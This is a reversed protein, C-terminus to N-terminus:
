VAKDVADLIALALYRADAPTLTLETFNTSGVTGAIINVWDSGTWDVDIAVVTAPKSPDTDQNEIYGPLGDTVNYAM